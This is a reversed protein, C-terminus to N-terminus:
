LTPRLDYTKQLNTSKDVILVIEDQSDVCLWKTIKGADNKEMRYSFSAKGLFPMPPEDLKSYWETGELSDAFQKFEPYTKRLRYYIELNKKHRPTELALSM